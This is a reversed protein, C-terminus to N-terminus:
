SFKKQPAHIVISANLFVTKKIKRNIKGSFLSFNTSVKLFTWFNSVRVIKLACQLSIKVELSLIQDILSLNRMEAPPIESESLAFEDLIYIEAGWLCDQFLDFVKKSMQSNSKVCLDYFQLCFCSRVGRQILSSFRKTMPSLLETFM